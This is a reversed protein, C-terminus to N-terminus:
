GNPLLLKGLRAAADKQMTPPIHSCLYLMIRISTRGLRKSVVKPNVETEPFHTACIHRCGQFNM